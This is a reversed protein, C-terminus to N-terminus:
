RSGFFPLQREMRRLGIRDQNSIVKALLPIEEIPNRTQPVHRLQARSCESHTDRVRATSFSRGGMRMAIRLLREAHFRFAPSPATCAPLAPSLPWSWLPIPSSAMWSVPASSVSILEAPGLAIMSAVFRRHAANRFAGACYVIRSENLHCIRLPEEDAPGRAKNLDM